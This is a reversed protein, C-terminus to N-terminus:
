KKLYYIVKQILHIAQEIEQKTTTRGLSFRIASRARQLPLNMNLLIRSPELAGSSCASGHSVSLGELDLLMLLSEGDIGDFSINSTNVIRPGLGNVISNPLSKLLSEELLDRLDQLHKTIVIQDESLIKVAEAMGAIAALNETGARRNYEQNGGMWMPMLKISQRCFCFGVGKPAHIKHGSFFAATVGRPIHFSEKGLLAVGDLVFPIQYEAAIESIAEWDTKVGTENNVAMLTILRTDPRIAARVADPKISGWEGPNLVTTEYGKIELEKVTEFVCAHETGSTILHGHPKQLMIGNLLLHAGETGGSTFFIEKSKIGLFDAINQRCEELVQKAKQGYFHISSPNGFNEELVQVIVKLVRPDIPTSANYDLYIRNTM